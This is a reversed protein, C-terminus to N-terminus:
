ELYYNRYLEKWNIKENVNDDGDDVNYDDDANYDDDVNDDDKDNDSSDESEKKQNKIKRPLNENVITKWLNENSSILTM